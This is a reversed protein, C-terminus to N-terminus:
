REREKSLLFGGEGELGNNRTIIVRNQEQNNGFTFAKSGQGKEGWVGRM